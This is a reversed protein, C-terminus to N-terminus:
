LKTSNNGFFCRKSIFKFKKVCVIATKLLKEFRYEASIYEDRHFIGESQAHAMKANIELVFQDISSFNNPHFSKEFIDNLVHAFPFRFKM